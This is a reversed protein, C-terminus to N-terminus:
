VILMTPTELTEKIKQFIYEQGKYNLYYNNKQIFFEKNETINSIDIFICNNKQALNQLELNIKEIKSKSIFTSEYLGIIYIKKDNLKRISTIVEEYKKLFGNIKTSGLINKKAYNNLEDMGLSITIIDAEKIAQKLKIKKDINAMNNQMKIVLNSATEDVENFYKYYTGLKNEENLFEILYENYDYGEVHYVTMGTSIGDGLALVSINDEGTHFYIGITLIMGIGIITAIKFKM